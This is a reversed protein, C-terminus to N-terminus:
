KEATVEESAPQPETETTAKPETKTENESKVDTDAASLDLKFIGDEAAYEIEMTPMGMAYSAIDYPNFYLVLSKDTLYWKVKSVNKAFMDEGDVEYEVNNETKWKTFIETVTEDIEKQDGNLVDTLALAKYNKLDLTKSSCTENPHAGNADSYDYTTVSLIDKRNTNVEFSLCFVMPLYNEESKYMNEAVEAFESEADAAYKEAADKYEKNIAAIFDSNAANDIIPYACSIYALDAGDEARLTKELHGSGVKFQGGKKVIAATNSEDIWDVTCDLSESVARLPVLTRDNVIKPAVDLTVESGNVSMKNSGIQLFVVDSGRQAEVMELEGYRQYSVACDLAEFIARFPVLTRDNEMIPDVDFSMPQGNMTVTIKDAAAGDAFASGCVSATVAAASLATITLKRIKM